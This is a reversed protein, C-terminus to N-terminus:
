IGGFKDQRVFKRSSRRGTMMQGTCYGGWISSHTSERLERMDTMGQSALANYQCMDDRGGERRTETVDRQGGINSLGSQQYTFEACTM